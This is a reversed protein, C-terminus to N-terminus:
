HHGSWVRGTAFFTLECREVFGARRYVGIAMETSHLVVRRSGLEKAQALLTDTLRGAIGLGRAERRVSMGYIAAVGPPGALSLYAKGVPAGDRFAVWRRGKARAGAWHRNLRTVHERDREDLEWYSMVVDEYASLGAEDVVEALEVDAAPETARPRWSDLDLSMGAAVEVPELGAATLADPLTAPRASPHVVWFLQAGRRSHSDAIRAVVDTPRAEILTRIVGNYPLKSIPTEFRLTGDEEV